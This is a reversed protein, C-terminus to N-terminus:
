PHSCKEPAKEPENPEYTSWDIDSNRLDTLGIRSVPVQQNRIAEEANSGWPTGTTEVFIRRKFPRKGSESLFSDLHEKRIKTGQAYFKCQIAVAPTDPKVIGDASMDDTEIAVLDIGTDPRHAKGGGPWDRWFYVEAFQRRMESDNKLYARTAQELWSGKGRQSDSVEKYRELM